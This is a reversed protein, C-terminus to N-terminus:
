REHLIVQRIEAKPWSFSKATFFWLNFPSILILHVHIDYMFHVPLNLNVFLAKSVLDLDEKPVVEVSTIVGGYKRQLFM